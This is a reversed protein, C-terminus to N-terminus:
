ETFEIIYASVTITNVSAVVFSKYNSEVTENIIARSTGELGANNLMDARAQAVLPNFSGGFGLVSIGHAKGEVKSIIKYNKKSLVVETAHNNLNSTLGSHIACGSMSFAIMGAIIIKVLKKM